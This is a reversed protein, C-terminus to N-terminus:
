KPAPPEAPRAPAADGAAGAGSAALEKARETARLVDAAPLVMRDYGKYESGDNGGAQLDEAGPLQLVAIGVIRGEATLVPMGARNNPAGPQTSIGSAVLLDRPKSTKGLIRGEELILARDFFKGLRAATFLTQGVEPEAGNKLDVYDYPTPAPEEIQIWALDLDTDRSVVRAKVGETDDGILVKVDTPTVSIGAEPQFRAMLGAQGLLVSNACLVLGTPEIMVATLESEEDNSGADGGGEVKLVHRITVMAGDTKKALAAVDGGDDPGRAAANHAPALSVVAMSALFISAATRFM